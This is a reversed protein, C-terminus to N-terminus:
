IAGGLTPPPEAAAEAGATNVDADQMMKEVLRSEDGLKIRAAEEFMADVTEPNVNQFQGAAQIMEMLNAYRENRKNDSGFDVKVVFDFADGEKYFDRGIMPEEIGLSRLTESSVNRFVKKVFNKALHSFLTNNATTIQEELRTSSQSNLLAIAGIARRDSTSTVGRQNGNVSSTKEIDSEYMSLDDHIGMTTPARRERIQNVDGVPIKHGPGRKLHSANVKAGTGIYLSPNIQEEVIDSHQNRRKNIAKVHEKILDIESEGYVMVQKERTAPDVSSLKERSFGWCFPNEYFRAVRILLNEYYTKCLWYGDEKILIEKLEYRKFPEFTRKDYPKKFFERFGKLRNYFKKNGKKRRDADIIKKIDKASKFYRHVVYQVDNHNKAEPDFAIDMPNKEEIVYTDKKEDYFLQLVGVPLILMRLMAKNIEVFPDSKEWYYKCAIRLQRAAESDEEGRRSINLAFQNIMFSSSFISRKILVTDRAIPVFIHSRGADELAKCLKEDVINNYIKELEYWNSSAEEQAAFATDILRYDLDDSEILM